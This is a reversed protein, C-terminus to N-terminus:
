EEAEVTVTGTMSPYFACLYDFSGANIFTITRSEGPSLPGTNFVFNVESVNHMTSGNNIFTISDGVHITIDDPSFAFDDISVVFTEVADEDDTDDKDKIGDNDHDNLDSDEHDDIGDNDDDSDKRDAIGDNDHDIMKGCTAEALDAIGDQDDDLDNKDAKGVNDHDRKDGADETRDAIGDDDDDLDEIDDKGTNDHNHKYRSKEIYDPISDVDRDATSELDNTTDDESDTVGDNDADYHYQDKEVCDPYGDGDSDIETATDDSQISHNNASAPQLSILTVVGLVLALLAARHRKLRNM